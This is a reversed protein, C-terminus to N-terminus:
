PAVVARTAAFDIPYCKTALVRFDAPGADDGSLKPFSALQPKLAGCGSRKRCRCAPLMDASTRAPSRIAPLRVESLRGPKSLVNSGASSGRHLNMLEPIKDSNRFLPTKRMCRFALM